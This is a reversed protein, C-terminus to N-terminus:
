IQRNQWKVHSSKYTAKQSQLSENQMNELNVWTTVHISVENKKIALSYMAPTSWMKNIWRDASPCKTQKWRQATTFLPAIFMQTCIKIHVYKENRKLIYRSTSKSPRLTGRRKVTQPIARSSEWAAAGGGMGVLRASPESEGVAEQVWQTSSDEHTHPATERTRVDNGQHSIVDLMNEHPEQGRTYRGQLFKFGKGM